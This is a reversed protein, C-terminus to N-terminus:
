VKSSRNTMLSAITKKVREVSGPHRLVVIDAGAQILTSATIVEWNTSRQKWDGWATPVGENVKSEKARWAEEGVTCIMPQQTMGDGTLAALRLREMVSYTYELGYGLAGTTPDMLIRDLDLRMDSILINLQKALNVDIPTKAIVLHGHALAAAVITRYNKDECNGLVIREGKAAEAVAVLVENDKEAQGPGYVILPLGTAALVGKATAIAHAADTNGIEPHASQLKLAILDASCEEAKKAWAAADHLVDGWVERLIASWDTPYRDQVELAVAPPNPIQGEFTLFPLTSEGGVTVKKKRTGGENATAGLTVERVKGTWKETPIQVTVPM